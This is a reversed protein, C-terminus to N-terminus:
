AVEGRANQDFYGLFIKDLSRLNKRLFMSASLLEFRCGSGMDEHPLLEVSRRPLTFIVATAKEVTSEIRIRGGQLEVLLGFGMGPSGPEKEGVAFIRALKEPLIGRGTDQVVVEVDAGKPSSAITVEGDRSYRLADSTLNMRFVATSAHTYCDRAPYLEPIWIQSAISKRPPM